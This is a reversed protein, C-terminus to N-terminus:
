SIHNPMEPFQCQLQFTIMDEFTLFLKFDLVELLQRELHSFTKKSIGITQYLLNMDIEWDEWMKIAVMSSVLLLLFIQYCLLLSIFIPILFITSSISVHSPSRRRESQYIIRRVQKPEDLKGCKDVFRQAYILTSTILNDKISNYNIIEMIEQVLRLYRQGVEFAMPEKGWQCILPTIIFDDM